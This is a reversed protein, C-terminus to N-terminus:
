KWATSTANITINILTKQVIWITKDNYIAHKQGKTAAKHAEDHLVNEEGRWVSSPLIICFCGASVGRGWCFCQTHKYHKKSCFLPQAMDWLEPSSPSVGSHSLSNAFITRSLRLCCCWLQSLIYSISYACKEGMVPCSFFCFSNPQAVLQSASLLPQEEVSRSSQVVGETWSFSGFTWICISFLRRHSKQM